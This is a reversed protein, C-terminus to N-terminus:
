QFRYAALEAICQQIFVRVANRVNGLSRASERTRDLYWSRAKISCLIRLFRAQKPLLVRMARPMVVALARIRYLACLVRSREVASGSGMGLCQAEGKFPHVGVVGVCDDTKRVHGDLVGFVRRMAYESGEKIAVEFGDFSM